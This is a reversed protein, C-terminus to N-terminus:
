RFMGVPTPLVSHEVPLSEPAVSCGWAYPSFAALLREDELINRERAARFKNATEELLAVVGRAGLRERQEDLVRRATHPDVLEGEGSRGGTEIIRKNIMYRDLEQMDAGAAKAEQFVYNVEWFHGRIENAVGRDAALQALKVSQILQRDRDVLTDYEAQTLKGSKLMSRYDRLRAKQAASMHLFMPGDMNSWNYVFSDRMREGLTGIPTNIERELDGVLKEYQRTKTREVRQMAHEAAGEGLATQRIDDFAAKLQKSHEIADLMNKCIRPARRSMEDSSTLFWGILEGVTGRLNEKAGVTAATFRRNGASDKPSGYVYDLWDAAENMMYEFTSANAGKGTFDAIIGQGLTRIGRGVAGTDAPMQMIIRGLENAMVQTAGRMGGPTVGKVRGMYISRMRNAFVGDSTTRDAELEDPTATVAWTPDSEARFYGEAIMKERVKAADGEDLVRLLDKAVGVRGKSTWADEANRGTKTRRFSTPSKGTLAEVLRVTEAMGLALPKQIPAGGPGNPNLHWPM